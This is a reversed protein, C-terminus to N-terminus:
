RTMAAPPHGRELDAPGGRRERLRVHPWPEGREISAALELRVGEIFKKRDEPDRL